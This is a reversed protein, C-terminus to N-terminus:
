AEPAPGTSGREVLTLLERVHQIKQKGDARSQRVLKSLLDVARAAMEALPQRITTLEPWVTSAIPADDFGAISLYGPVRLGQGQALASVAAAM